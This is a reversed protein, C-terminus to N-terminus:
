SSFISNNLTKTEECSQIFVSIQPAMMASFQNFSSSSLATSFKTFFDKQNDLIADLITKLDTESNKIAIKRESKKIHIYANSRGLFVDGEQMKHNNIISLADLDHYQQSYTDNFEDEFAFVKASSNISVVGDPFLVKANKHLTKKNHLYTNVKAVVESKGKTIKTAQRYIPPKM